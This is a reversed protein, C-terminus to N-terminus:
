KNKTSFLIGNNLTGSNTYESFFMNTAELNQYNHVFSSYVDVHPNKHSQLNEAGKILHWICMRVM